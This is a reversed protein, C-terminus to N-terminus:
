LHAIHAEKKNYGDKLSSLEDEQQKVRRLLKKLQDERVKM